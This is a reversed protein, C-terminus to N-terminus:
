GAIRLVRQPFRFKASSIPSVPRLPPGRRMAIAAISSQTYFNRRAPCKKYQSARATRAKEGLSRKTCDQGRTNGRNRGHGTLRLWRTRRSRDDNCRLQWSALISGAPLDGLFHHGALHCARGMRHAPSHEEVQRLPSSRSTVLCRVRSACTHSSQMPSPPRQGPLTM